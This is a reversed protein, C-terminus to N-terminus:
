LQTCDRQQSSKRRTKSKLIRAVRVERTHKCTEIQRCVDKSTTELGQYLVCHTQLWMGKSSCGPGRGTCDQNMRRFSLLSHVLWHKICIKGPWNSLLINQLFANSNKCTISQNFSSLVATFVMMKACKINFKTWRPCAPTQYVSPLFPSSIEQYPPHPLINILFCTDRDQLLSWSVQTYDRLDNRNGKSTMLYWMWCRTPTPSPM